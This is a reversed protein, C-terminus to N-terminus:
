HLSLLDLDSHRPETEPERQGPLRELQHPCQVPNACHSTFITTFIAAAMPTAAVTATTLAAARLTASFAATALSAAPISANTSVAAALTLDGLVRPM